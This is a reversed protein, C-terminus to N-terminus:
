NPKAYITITFADQPIGRSELYATFNKAEDESPRYHGSRTNAEQVIGEKIILEGPCKVSKGKFFSSHHFKGRMEIGAYLLDDPGLVFMYTNDPMKAGEHNILTPEEKENLKIEVLYRKREEPSLFRVQIDPNLLKECTKEQAALFDWFSMEKQHEAQWTTFIEKLEHPRRHKSDFFEIWARDRLPKCPQVVRGEENRSFLMLVTEVCGRFRANKTKKNTDLSLEELNHIADSLFTQEVLTLM